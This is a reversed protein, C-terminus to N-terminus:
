RNPYTDPDVTKKMDDGANGLDKRVEDGVNGVKDGLDEGGDIKRATEKADQETERYVKKADDM